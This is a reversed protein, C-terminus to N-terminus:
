TLRSQRVRYVLIRLVRAGDYSETTAITTVGFPTAHVHGRLARREASRYRALTALLDEAAPADRGSRVTGNEDIRIRVRDALLARAAREDGAAFAWEFQAVTESASVQYMHLRRLDLRQAAPRWPDRRRRLAERLRAPTL